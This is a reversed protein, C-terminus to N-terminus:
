FGSLREGARDANNSPSTVTHGETMESSYFIISIEFLHGARLRNLFEPLIDAIVIQLVRAVSPLDAAVVRHASDEFLIAHM